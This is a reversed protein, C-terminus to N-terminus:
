RTETILCYEGKSMEDDVPGEAGKNKRGAEGVCEVKVERRRLHNEYTATEMEKRKWRKDDNVTDEGGNETKAKM